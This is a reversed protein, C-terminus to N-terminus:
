RSRGWNRRRIQNHQLTIQSQLSSNQRRLFEIYERVREPLAAFEEEGINPDSNERSPPINKGLGQEHLLDLLASVEDQTIRASAQPLRERQYTVFHGAHFDALAVDFTDAWHKLLAQKTAPILPWAESITMTDLIREDRM